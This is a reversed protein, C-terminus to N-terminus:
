LRQPHEFRNLIILLASISLAILSLAQARARTRTNSFILKITHSGQPVDILMTKLDPHTEVPVPLDDVFARWGPFMFSYVHLTDGTAALVEIVREQPKWEILRASSDPSDSLMQFAGAVPLARVDPADKPTFDQEVCDIPAVFQLRLNSACACSIIGFILAAVTLTVAFLDRGTRGINEIRLKEFAAGGLMSTAFTTIALWRWLFAMGSIGPMVRVLPAAVPLMVFISIFGAITWAFVHHNPSPEQSRNRAFVVFFFFLLGTVIVTAAILKEFTSGVLLDTVYGRNNDFLDTVSQNVYGVELIAPVWYFASLASGLMCILSGSLVPRWSKSRVARVAIFVALSVSFAYAVPPHTVILLGYFIAGSVIRRAGPRKVAGDLMLMVLPMWVFAILEALAGRHYLDILRYPLLLYLVSAVASAARSLFSRAYFYLTAASGMAALLVVAEVSRAWDGLVAHAASLSYYVVPAYFMTTAAGYGYNMGGLWRPYWVGSRLAEDFMLMRPWHIILDGAEPLNGQAAYFFPLSSAIAVLILTAIIRRRLSAAFLTKDINRAIEM